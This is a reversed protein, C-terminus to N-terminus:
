ITLKGIREFWLINQKKSQGAVTPCTNNYVREQGTQGTNLKTKANIIVLLGFINFTKPRKMPHIYSYHLEPM